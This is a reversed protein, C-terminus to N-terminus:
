DRQRRLRNLLQNPTFTWFSKIGLLGKVVEVCNFVCLTFRSQENIKSRVKIVISNDEAYLRPHPYTDVLALSIDLYNVLPNVIQWFQGGPTKKMAYVHNIEPHFLRMIWSNYKSKCFILYYEEFQPTKIDM